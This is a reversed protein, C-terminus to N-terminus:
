YGLNEWPFGTFLYSKGYELCIWLVPAVVYLPFRRRLYVIGAAFLAYYLSLYCALLLMLTVGLYMPLHGYNVVVYTIWYLIGVCATMGAMWGILFAKWLSVVNRLAMFLPVFAIWAMFGLGFKPFSLFILIGSFLALLISQGRLREGSRKTNSENNMM